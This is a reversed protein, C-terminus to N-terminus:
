VIQKKKVYFLYYIIFLVSTTVWTIPYSIMVTKITPWIPVAIFLWVVRFICVGFCTLLMPILSSGMGRLAGSLIEICIFTIFMPVLFKLMQTGIEVVNLDDSFWQLIYGGFNYLIVILGISVAFSLVLAERVGKRVRKYLGAGYNQGVFTTISIGFATITMWFLGDIKGYATWAAITDTGFRNINAQIIVNSVSYMLSQFGAPLGISLIRTLMEKHFKIKILVLRYSDNTKMLTRCVLIASLSQSMITALAAGAVGMKLVIVFFLDLIINALTGTILFYLPRKSDGVARLIGAGINYVLNPIMGLFYIRLYILSYPIIDEPTGMAALAPRAFMLGLFMITFGGGIALAIGTHVSSEVKKNNRAGYFQSISITAGSSIGVFFGVLVNILTGTTGGVASLAIKGVFKGVIIADATNYLQQFFTGFLLPFFFLLLQKWIVGETIGNQKKFFNSDETKQKEELTM